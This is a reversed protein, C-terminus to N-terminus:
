DYYIVEEGWHGAHREARRTQDAVMVLHPESYHDFYIAEIADQARWVGAHEINGRLGGGPGAFFVRTVGEPPPPGYVNERWSGGNWNLEIHVLKGVWEAPLETMARELVLREPENLAAVVADPELNGLKSLQELLNM